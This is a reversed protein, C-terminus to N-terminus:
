LKKVNMSFFFKGFHFRQKSLKLNTSVTMSAFYSVKKFIKIIAGSFHWPLIFIGLSVEAEIIGAGDLVNIDGVTEPPPPRPSPDLNSQSEDADTAKDLFKLLPFWYVTPTYIDDGEAGSKISRVM